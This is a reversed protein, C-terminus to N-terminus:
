IDKEYAMLCLKDVKENWINGTHGKVHIFGAILNKYFICIERYHKTLDNNTKWPKVSPTHM